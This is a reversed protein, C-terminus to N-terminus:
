VKLALLMLKAAEQEAEKKSPGIGITKHEQNRFQCTLEIHFTKKHDPGESKLITYNPLSIKNRQLLEQLQSKPDSADELNQIESYSNFIHIVWRRTPELGIDFYSAAIIAEFTNSLTSERNAGGTKQESYSLRVHNHLELQAAIVALHKDSILQARIKTLKGESFNPHKNLLHESIIFKLIADGFFELRENDGTNNKKDWKAYSSHTLAQIWIIPKQIDIKLAKELHKLAENTEAM